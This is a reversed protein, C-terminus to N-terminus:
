CKIKIVILLFTFFLEGRVGMVKKTQAQTKKM